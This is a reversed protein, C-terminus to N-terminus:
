VNEYGLEASEFGSKTWASGTSPDTTKMETTLTYSQALSASTGNYPSGSTYQKPRITRATGGDQRAAIVHQVGLITASSAPIKALTFTDINGSTSSSNYSLDDDQSADDVCGVNTGLSPTFDAHSGAVVPQAYYGYSIGMFDDAVMIDDFYNYTQGIGIANATNNSGGNGRTNLTGGFDSKTKQPVWGTSSGNVRAEIVGDTNHITAKFEVWYWTGPVLVNTSTYLTTGARSVILHGTSDTRLSCQETSTSVTTDYFQVLYTSIITNATKYWFGVCRTAQSGGPLVKGVVRANGSPICFGNGGGPGPRAYTPAIVISCDDSSIWTWKKSIPNVGSYFTGGLVPTYTYHDFTDGWEITAM